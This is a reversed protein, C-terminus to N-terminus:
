RIVRLQIKISKRIIRIIAGLSLLISLIGMVASAAVQPTSPTELCEIYQRGLPPGLSLLAICFKSDPTLPDPPPDKLISLDIEVPLDDFPSNANGGREGNGVPLNSLQRKSYIPSNDDSSHPSHDEEQTNEITPAM